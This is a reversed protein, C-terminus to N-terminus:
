LQVGESLVEHIRAHHTYSSWQTLEVRLLNRPRSGSNGHRKLTVNYPLSIKLISKEPHSFYRKFNILILITKMKRFIVIIDKVVFVM